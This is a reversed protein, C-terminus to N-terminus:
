GRWHCRASALSRPLRRRDVPLSCSWEKGPGATAAHCSLLATVCAVFGDDSLEAQSVLRALADHDEHNGDLFAWQTGYREAQRDIGDLFSEGTAKGLRNREGPWYGFGGLQVVWQCHWRGALKSL